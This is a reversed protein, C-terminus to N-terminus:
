SYTPSTRPLPSNAPRSSTSSLDELVGTLSSTIFATMRLIVSSPTSTPLVVLLTGPKFLVMLTAGGKITV